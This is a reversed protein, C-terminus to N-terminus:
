GTLGDDAVAGFRPAFGTCKGTSFSRL